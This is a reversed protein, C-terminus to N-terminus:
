GQGAASLEVSQEYRWGSKSLVGRAEAPIVYAVGLFCSIRCMGM